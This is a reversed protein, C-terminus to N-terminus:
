CNKFIVEYDANLNFFIFIGIDVALQKASHESLHSLSLIIDTYHTCTLRAINGLIYDAPASTDGPQRVCSLAALLSGDERLVFPELHQPLTM